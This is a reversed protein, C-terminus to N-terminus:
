LRLCGNRDVQCTEYIRPYVVQGRSGSAVCATGGSDLPIPGPGVFGMTFCFLVDIDCYQQSDSVFIPHIQKEFSTKFYPEGSSPQMSTSPNTLILLSESDDFLSLAMIEATISALQRLFDAPHCRQFSSENTQRSGTAGCKHCACEQCLQECHLKVVPLDTIIMGMELVRSVATTSQDLIRSAMSMITKVRPFPNLHTNPQQTDQPYSGDSIQGFKLNQLVKHVCYPVAQCVARYAVETDLDKSYLTKKGFIDISVMQPAYNMRVNPFSILDTLNQVAGTILIQFSDSTSDAPSAIISIKSHPSELLSTGDELFISPTVGLCWKIFAIVWPSCFNSRIEIHTTEEDGIRAIQRLGDM